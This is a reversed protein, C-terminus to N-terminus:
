FYDRLQIHHDLAKHAISSLKLKETTLVIETMSPETLIM